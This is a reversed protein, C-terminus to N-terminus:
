KKKRKKCRNMLHLTGTPLAAFINLTNNLYEKMSNNYSSYSTLKYRYLTLKKKKKKKSNIIRSNEKKVESKKNACSLEFFSSSGSINDMKLYFFFFICKHTKGTLSASIGQCKPIVSLYNSKRQLNIIRRIKISMVKIM